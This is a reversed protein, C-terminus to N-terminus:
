FDQLYQFFILDELLYLPFLPNTGAYYKSQWIYYHVFGNHDTNQTKDSVLEWQVDALNNHIINGIIKANKSEKVSKSLQNYMSKLGEKTAVIVNLDM